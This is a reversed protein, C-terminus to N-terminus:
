RLRWELVKVMQPGILSRGEGDVQDNNQVFLHLKKQNNWLDFDYLPEYSGCSQKYIDTVTWQNAAINLNTAMSIYNGREEDRFLVGAAWKGNRRWSIVQPRSIPIRKTGAGSLTFPEKRFGLNQVQWKHNRRIILHYQPVSQNEPRWYSAILVEGAPNVTMATQNILESNPPIRLAYEANSATIPLQYREGDSREWSMGGDKSRAYCVDHNSAVDPSERWVWSIHITGKADVCSQWYANRKGEGDILNHQVQRWRQARCDYKNIVLSGNGSSGDRYLFLLDGDPMKYFEPYTIEEESCGTMSRAEGLILSFPQISKAYRLKSGHHGWSVHLYGDGDLAISISCHADAVDGQFPTKQVEWRTRGLTRKALVVYGDADYYSIYQMGGQSTLANKRFIVTNISNKAWGKGVDVIAQAAVVYMALILVTSLLTRRRASRVKCFYFAPM